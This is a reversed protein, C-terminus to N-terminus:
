LSSVRRAWRLGMIWHSALTLPVALGLVRHTWVLRERWVDSGVYYLGVGTAILGLFAFEMAFGSVLNARLRWGVRIHHCVLFGFLASQAPFLCGHLILIPRLWGPSQMQEAQLTQGWWIAIGSLFGAALLLVVAVRTLQSLQSPRSSPDFSPAM